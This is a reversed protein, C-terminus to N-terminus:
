SIVEISDTLMNDRLPKKWQSSKAVNDFASPIYGEFAYLVAILVQKQRCGGHLPVNM